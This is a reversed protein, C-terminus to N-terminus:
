TASLLASSDPPQMKLGLRGERREVRRGLIVNGLLRDRACDALRFAM